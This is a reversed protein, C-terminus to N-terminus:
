GKVRVFLDKTTDSTNVAQQPKMWKVHGDMFALNTGDFHQTGFRYFDTRQFVFLAHDTTIVSKPTGDIGAELLWVTRATDSFGSLAQGESIDSLAATNVNAQSGNYQQCPYYSRAIDRGSSYNQQIVLPVSQSPCVYIQDSKVYPKMAVAWSYSNGGGNATDWPYATGVIVPFIREDYDQTYQAMGLGLQKLNSQCSARRANERARAFVPFLIAALIAIIAIVVLLEILTFGSRCPKQASPRRTGRYHSINM